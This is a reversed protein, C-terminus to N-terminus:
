EELVCKYTHGTTLTGTTFTFGDDTIRPDTDPVLVGDEYWVLSGSPLEDSSLIVSGNLYVSVNLVTSISDKGVLGNSSTISLTYIQSVQQNLAAKSGKLTAFSGLEVSTLGTVYSHELKIIRASLLIDDHTDLVNITDGCKLGDPLYLLEAEYTTKTEVIKEMERIAYNILAQATDYQTYKVMMIVGDTDLASKWKEVAQVCKVNNTEIKYDHKIVKTGVKTGKAYTKPAAAYGDLKSLAKNDKGFMKWVTALNEISQKKRIVDVEKGAYLNVGTTKGRKKVFNIKRTVTDLGDITYTFYMEVGYSTLIDHLRDLASSEATYELEKTQTKDIGYRFTWGHNSGLTNGIWQAFTKTTKAVSGCNRNILDIGADECYLAVTRDSNDYESTIIMYLTGAVLMYNGAIAYKRIKESAAITCEYTKVGSSVEDTMNDSIIRDCDPLDTSALTLVKNNRNTIYIVM